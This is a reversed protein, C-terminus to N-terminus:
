TIRRYLTCIESAGASPNFPIDDTDIPILESWLRRYRPHQALLRDNPANCYLLDFRRPHTSASRDLHDLFKRLVPEAFPNYLFFLCAGAPIEFESADTCVANVPMPPHQTAHWLNLNAQATEALGGNLEVGLVERFPYQTALMLARGKGCGVDIFAYESAPLEPPTALWRQLIARFRSPPVGCYGTCFLDHPHGSALHVATILGSTDVGFRRDFPHITSETSAEHRPTLNRLVARMTGLLGRHLLSWRVKALGTRIAEM